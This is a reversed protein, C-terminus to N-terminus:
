TKETIRGAQEFTADGKEKVGSLVEWFAQM